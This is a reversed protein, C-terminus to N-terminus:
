QNTVRTHLAALRRVLALPVAPELAKQDYPLQKPIQWYAFAGGEFTDMADIPFPNGELTRYRRLAEWAEVPEEDAEKAEERAKEEADQKAIKEEFEKVETESMEAKAKEM